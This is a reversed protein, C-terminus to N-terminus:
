VVSRQSPKQPPWLCEVHLRAPESCTEAIKLHRQPAWEDLITNAPVVCTVSGPVCTVGHPLSMRHSVPLANEGASARAAAARCNVMVSM